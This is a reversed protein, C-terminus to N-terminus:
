RCLKTIFDYVYPIKFVMHLNHNPTHRPYNRITRLVRNQLRQLKLLLLRGCIGLHPLFTMVLRILAKYLTLKTNTNLRESKFLSNGSRVHGEPIRRSTCWLMTCWMLVVSPGDTDQQGRRRAGSRSAIALTSNSVISLSSVTRHESPEQDDASCRM